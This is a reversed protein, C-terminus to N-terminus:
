GVWSETLLRQRQSPRPMTEERKKTGLDIGFEPNKTELAKNTEANLVGGLFPELAMNTEANLVGLAKAYTQIVTTEFPQWALDGTDVKAKKQLKQVDPIGVEFYKKDTRLIKFSGRSPLFWANQCLPHRKLKAVVDKALEEGEHCSSSPTTDSSPLHRTAGSEMEKIDFALEKVFWELAAFNPENADFALIPARADNLVLVVKDRLLIGVVLKCTSAARKAKINKREIQKLLEQLLPVKRSNLLWWRSALRLHESLWEM